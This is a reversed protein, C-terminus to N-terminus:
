SEDSISVENTVLRPISRYKGDSDEIDVRIVDMMTSTNLTYWRKNKVLEETATQRRYMVQAAIDDLADNMLEMLYKHSKRGMVHEIQSIISQVKKAM